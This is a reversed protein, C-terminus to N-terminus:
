DEVYHILKKKKKEYENNRRYIGNAVLINFTKKSMKKPLQLM